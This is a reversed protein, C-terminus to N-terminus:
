TCFVFKIIERKHYELDRGTFSFVDAIWLIEWRVRPGGSFIWTMGIRPPLGPEVRGILVYDIRLMHILGIDCITASKNLSKAVVSECSIVIDEVGSM